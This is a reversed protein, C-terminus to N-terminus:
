VADVATPEAQNDALFGKVFPFIKRAQATQASLQNEKPVHAPRICGADEPGSKKAILEFPM